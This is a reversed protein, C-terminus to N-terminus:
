YAEDFSGSRNFVGNEELSENIISIKIMRVKSQPSVADQWVGALNASVLKSTQIVTGNFLAKDVYAQIAEQKEDENLEDMFSDSVYRVAFYESAIKPNFSRWEHLRFLSHYLKWMRYLTRRRPFWQLTGGNELSDSFLVVGKYKGSLLMLVKPHPREMWEQVCATALPGGDGGRAKAALLVGAAIELDRTTKFLVKLKDRQDDAYMQAVAIVIGSVIGDMKTRYLNDLYGLAAANDFPTMLHQVTRRDANKTHAFAQLVTALITKRPFQAFFVTALDPSSISALQLSLVTSLGEDETPSQLVKLVRTIKDVGPSVAHLISQLRAESRASLVFENVDFVAKEFEPPELPATKSTASPSDSSTAAALDLERIDTEAAEVSFGQAAQATRFLQRYQETYQDEAEMRSKELQAVYDAYASRYRAEPEQIDRVHDVNLWALVSGMLSEDIRWSLDRRIQEEVAIAELRGEQLLHRVEDASIDGARRACLVHGLFVFINQIVDVTRYIHSECFQEVLRKTTARLSTSGQYIADCTELILQFQRQRFDSFPKAELAKILLLFPVTTTQSYAYGTPDLTVVYGLIPKMRLKAVKWHNANIYLPMVATINERALGGMVNAENARDFGGHVEEPSSTTGLSYQLAETYMSGTIYTPGISKITLQSPDAIAAPSRGVDFTLCICDHDELAEIYTQTSFACALERKREETEAEDMAKFDFGSVLEAIDDDMKQFATINKGARADLKAKLRAQTIQGYALSNFNALSLNSVTGKHAEAKLALFSQLLSKTRACLAVCQEREERDRKQQERSNSNHTNGDNRNKYKRMKAAASATVGLSRALAETQEDIARLEQQQVARDSGALITNVCDVLRLLEHQVFSAFGTIRTPSTEGVWGLTLDTAELAYHQQQQQEMSSEADMEALTSQIERVELTLAQLGEKAAEAANKLPRDRVIYTATQGDESKLYTWDEDGSFRFELERKPAQTVHTLLNLTNAMADKIAGANEIFQFCGQETGCQTLWGLLHADHYSTFGFSHVTSTTGPSRKIVEELNKRETKLVHPSYGDRGDTFFFITSEMDKGPSAGNSKRETINQKLAKFVSAFNTGGWAHLSKFWPLRKDGWEYQGGAKLPMVTCQDNYTYLTIEDQQAKCVNLLHDVLKEISEMAMMFANGSMSGSADLCIHYNCHKAQRAAQTRQGMMELCEEPIPPLTFTLVTPNDKGDVPHFAECQIRGRSDGRVEEAQDM